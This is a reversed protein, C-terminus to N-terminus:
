SSKGKLKTLLTKLSSPVPIGLSKCNEIISLSESSIYFLILLGRFNSSPSLIYIDLLYGIFVITLLLFKKSVEIILFYKSIKKKNSTRIIRSFLEVFCLIVLSITLVDIQSIIHSINLNM